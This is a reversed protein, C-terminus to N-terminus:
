LTVKRYFIFFLFFLMGHEHSYYEIFSFFYTQRERGKACTHLASSLSILSIIFFIIFFYSLNKENERM